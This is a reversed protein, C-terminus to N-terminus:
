TNKRYKLICLIIGIIMLYYAYLAVNKASTQFNQISLVACLFLLFLAVMIPIRYNLKLKLSIPIYVLLIFFMSDNFSLKQFIWVLFLLYIVSACVGVSFKLKNKKFSNYVYIVTFVALNKSKLFLTKCLNSLIKCSKLFIYIINKFKLKPLTVRPITINYEKTRLIGVQKKHVRKAKFRNAFYIIKQFNLIKQFNFILALVGFGIDFFILRGLLGPFDFPNTLKYLYFFTTVVLLMVFISTVIDRIDEIEM